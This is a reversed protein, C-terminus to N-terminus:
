RVDFDYEGLGHNEPGAKWGSSAAPFGTRWNGGNDLYSITLDKFYWAGRDYDYLM